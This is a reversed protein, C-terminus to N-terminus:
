SAAVASTVFGVAALVGAQAATWSMLRTVILSNYTLFGIWIMPLLAQAVMMALIHHQRSLRFLARLYSPSDGRDFATLSTASTPEDFWLYVGATIPFPSRM